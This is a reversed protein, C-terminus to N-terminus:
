RFRILETGRWPTSWFTHKELSTGDQSNEFTSRFHSVHFSTGAKPTEADLVIDVQMVTAWLPEGFQDSLGLFRESCGEIKVTSGPAIDFRLKGSLDGQRSKLVENVYLMRSYANMLGSNRTSLTTPAPFIASLGLGPFLASARALGGAGTTLLSQADIPIRSMWTPAAKFLIQGSTAGQYYGGIGLSAYDLARDGSINAGGAFGAGGYLGVGRLIRPMGGKIEVYDYEDAKITKWEQRIGPVFPVVIARDVLPVIAFLFNSSYQLLKDWLTMGSVGELTEYGAMEVIQMALHNLDGQYAKLDLTLPVSQVYGPGGVPRPEM